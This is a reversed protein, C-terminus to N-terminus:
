PNEKLWEECCRRIEEVEERNRLNMFESLNKDHRDLYLQIGWQDKNIEATVFIM